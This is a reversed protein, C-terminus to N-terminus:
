ISYHGGFFRVKGRSFEVRPWIKPKRGIKQNGTPRVAIVTPFDSMLRGALFGAFFIKDDSFWFYIFYNSSLRKNHPISSNPPPSLGSWRRDAAGTLPSSTSLHSLHCCFFSRLPVRRTERLPSGFSFLGISRRCSPGFFLDGAQTSSFRCIKLPFM